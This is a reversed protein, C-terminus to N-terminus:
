HLLVYGCARGPIRHPRGARAPAKEARPPLRQRLRLAIDPGDRTGRPSPAFQLQAGGRSGFAVGPAEEARGPSHGEHPGDFGHGRPGKSCPSCTEPDITTRCSVACADFWNLSADKVIATHRRHELHGRIGIFTSANATSNLYSANVRRGPLNATKFVPPEKGANAYACCVLYVIQEMIAIGVLSSTAATMLELGPVQLAADGATGCNDIVVDCVEYLKKSQGAGLKAAKSQNLSTIAVTKLGKERAYLAMEVPVANKGSNSVIALVEGSRTDAKDLVVRALGPMGRAPAQAPGEHQMLARFCSRTLRRWGERATICKKESSILTGQGLFTGSGEM